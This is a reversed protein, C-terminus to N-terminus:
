ISISPVSILDNLESIKLFDKPIIGYFGKRNEPVM